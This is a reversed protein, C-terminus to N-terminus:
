PEQAQWPDIITLGCGEFGGADRTVIAARHAHAVAAVILDPAEVPRGLQRRRAFLEAYSTAARDDFPLVRGAFDQEFIARAMAALETRRRGDPLVAIGALIEAQCMAATFLSAAPQARMWAALAEAPRPKMTESLVNTDLLYM